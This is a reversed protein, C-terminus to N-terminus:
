SRLPSPRTVNWVNVVDVVVRRCSPKLSTGFLWVNASAMWHSACAPTVSPQLVPPVRKQGSAGTVRPCIAAKRWRARSRGAPVAVKLSTPRLGVAEVGGDGCEGVGADGAAAVGAAGAEAGVGGDGASLHGGEELAGEVQGGAGGGEVVDAGGVAEVGGDGCEGVGADGAAAVGGPVRKQGSAGTV